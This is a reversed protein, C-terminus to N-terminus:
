RIWAEHLMVLAAFMALSLGFRGVAEPRLNIFDSIASGGILGVGLSGIFFVVQHETM